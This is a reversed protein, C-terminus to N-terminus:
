TRTTFKDVSSLRFSSSFDFDLKSFAILKFLYLRFTVVSCCFGINSKKILGHKSPNLPSKTKHNSSVSPM